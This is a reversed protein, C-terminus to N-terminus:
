FNFFFVGGFNLLEGWFFPSWGDWFRFPDEELQIRKWPSKSNIKPAWRGRYEGRFQRNKLFRFLKKPWDKARTCWFMSLKVRLIEFFFWQALYPWLVALIVNGNRRFVLPCLQIVNWNAPPLSYSKHKMIYLWTYSFYFWSIGLNM